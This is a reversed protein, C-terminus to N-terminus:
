SATQSLNNSPSLLNKILIFNDRSFIQFRFGLYLYTGVAASKMAFLLPYVIIQRFILLLLCSALFVVSMSTIKRYEWKINYYYQSLYFFLAGSIIGSTLTAWATGIMGWWITFPVMLAANLAITVASLVSIIWTKKSYGLQPLKGFFYTVNLISLIIVVDVAGHYESPTLFVIVEESYMIGLLAVLLFIYFYPTLFKGISERAQLGYNVMQKLVNPQFVNAISTLFIFVINAFRQGISYLGLGGMTGLTGLVFKDLQKEVVSLLVKFSLPYSLRLSKFLAEKSATVTNVKMFRYSILIFVALSAVFQGWALGIVGVRLAAVFALSCVFGLVTEDITYIVSAKANNTNKYYALYYVKLSGMAMACYTWFFLDSWISSGALWVAALSKLIYFAATVAIFIGTVFFLISYLLESDRGEKHYEFFYIDYGYMMGFNIIGSLFAGSVQALAYIGFEAPTLIRTFIPLSILPILFGVFNPLLYIFSNKIQTAKDLM